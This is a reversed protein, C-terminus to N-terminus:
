PAPATGPLSIRGAPNADIGFWPDDDAYERASLSLNGAPRSEEQVTAHPSGQSGPLRPAPTAATFRLSLGIEEVALEIVTQREGAKSEYTRPKLVGSAVVRSGKILSAAVNRAAAGRVRAALFLTEGDEWERSAADFVRPTSAITFTAVASGDLASRLAPDATLNGIVTIGTDASM